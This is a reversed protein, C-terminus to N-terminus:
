PKQGVILIYVQDFTADPTGACAPRLWDAAAQPAQALLIHLREIIHPACGQREAWPLLKMTRVFSEDHAVKLGADLLLGRWEDAAYARHHSPDRLRQFTEIYQAARPNDPLLHDEILLLGGPKLVRACEQAFRFCDPFHHAAIRCTVLDFTRAAFALNGADTAIYDINSQQAGDIFDRAARLMASTLDAAVVRRVHPAFKLATHGGGTAVDLLWHDAHPQALELLRDLERGQAHGASTVYGQAYQSFRAQAQARIDDTM